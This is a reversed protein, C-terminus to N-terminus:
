SPVHRRFRTLCTAPSQGRKTAEKERSWDPGVRGNEARKRGSFEYINAIDPRRRPAPFSLRWVESTRGRRSDQETRSSPAWCAARIAEIERECLWFPGYQSSEVRSTTPRSSEHVKSAVSLTPLKQIAGLLESDLRKRSGSLVFVYQKNHRITWKQATQLLRNVVIPGGPRRCRCWAKQTLRQKRGRSGHRAKPGKKRKKPIM